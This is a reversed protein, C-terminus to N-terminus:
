SNHLVVTGGPELQWVMGAGASARIGIADDSYGLQWREMGTIDVRKQSLNVIVRITKWPDSSHTGDLEWALVQEPLGTRVLKIM